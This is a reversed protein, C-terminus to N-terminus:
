LNPIEDDVVGEKPDPVYQTSPDEPDWDTGRVWLGPNDGDRRLQTSLAPLGFRGDRVARVRGRVGWGPGACGNWWDQQTTLAEVAYSPGNKLRVVGGSGSQRISLAVRGTWGEQSTCRARVLLADLALTVQLTNPLEPVVGLDFVGLSVEGRGWPLATNSYPDPVAEPVMGVEVAWPSVSGGVRTVHLRLPCTVVIPGDLIYSRSGVTQFRLTQDTTADFVLGARNSTGELISLDGTTDHPTIESWLGGTAVGWQVPPSWTVPSPSM